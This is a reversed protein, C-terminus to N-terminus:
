LLVREFVWSIEHVWEGALDFIFLAVSPYSPFNRKYKFLMVFYARSPQVLWATLSETPNYLM